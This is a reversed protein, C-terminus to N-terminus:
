NGKEKFSLRVRKDTIKEQLGLLEKKIADKLMVFVKECDDAIDQKLSAKSVLINVLQERNQIVQDKKKM